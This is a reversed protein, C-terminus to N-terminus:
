EAEAPLTLDGPSRKNDIQSDFEVADSDRTTTAREPLRFFAALQQRDADGNSLGATAPGGRATTGLMIQQCSEPSYIAVALQDGEALLEDVSRQAILWCGESLTNRAADTFRAYEPVFLLFAVSDSNLQAFARYARSEEEADPNTEAFQANDVIRLTEVYHAALNAANYECTSIGSTAEGSDVLLHAEAQDLLIEGESVVTPAPPPVVTPVVSMSWSYVILMGGMVVLSGYGLLLGILASEGGGYEGRSDRIVSRAMHGTVIAFVSLPISFFCLCMMPYSLIGSILSLVSLVSTKQLQHTTRYPSYRDDFSQNFSNEESM